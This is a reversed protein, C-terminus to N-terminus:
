FTAPVPETVPAGCDPWQEVHRLKTSGEVLIRTRRPNDMELNEETLGIVCSVHRHIQDQRM